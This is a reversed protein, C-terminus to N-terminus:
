RPNSALQTIIDETGKDPFVSFYIGGIDHTIALFALLGFVWRNNPRHISIVSGALFIACLAISSTTVTLIDNRTFAWVADYYVAFVRWSLVGEIFLIMLIASYYAAQKSKIWVLFDLVGTLASALVDLMMNRWVRIMKSIMTKALDIFGSLHM